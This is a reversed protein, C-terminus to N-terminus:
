YPITEFLTLACSTLIPKSHTDLHAFSLQVYVCSEGLKMFVWSPITKAASYQGKLGLNDGGLPGTFGM